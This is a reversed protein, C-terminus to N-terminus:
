EVKSANVSVTLEIQNREIYLTLTQMAFIVNLLENSKIAGNAAAYM